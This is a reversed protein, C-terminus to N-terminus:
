RRSGSLEWRKTGETLQPTILSVDGNRCRRPFANTFIAKHDKLSIRSLYSRLRRVDRPLAGRAARRARHRRIRVRTRRMVGLCRDLSLPTLESPYPHSHCRRHVIRNVLEGRLPVMTVPNGTNASSPRLAVELNVGSTVRLPECYLSGARCQGSHCVSPPSCHRVDPALRRWM